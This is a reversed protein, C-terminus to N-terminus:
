KKPSRTMGDSNRRVPKPAQRQSAPRPRATVLGAQTQASAKRTSPKQAAIPTHPEEIIITKIKPLLIYQSLKGSMLTDSIVLVYSFIAILVAFLYLWARFSWIDTEAYAFFPLPYRWEISRPLMVSTILIFSVYIIPLALWYFPDIPRWFGKKYFLLWDGLALIPLTAYVLGATLNHLTPHPIEASCCYLATASSLFLSVIIAGAFTPSPIEGVQRRKSVGLIMAAVAYYVAAATLVWSAFVRWGADGFELMVGQLGILSLISLAAKYGVTLWKKRIYM